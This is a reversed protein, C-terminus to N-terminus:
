DGVQSKPIQNNSGYSYINTSQNRPKNPPQNQPRNQPRHEMPQQPYQTFDIAPGFELPNYPVNPFMGMSINWLQQQFYPMAMLGFLNMDTQMFNSAFPDSSYYMGDAVSQEGGDPVDDPNPQQFPEM